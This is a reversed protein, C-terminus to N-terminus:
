RQGDAGGDDRRSSESPGAESRAALPDDDAETMADAAALARRLRRRFTPEDDFRRRLRDLLPERPARDSFVAAAVPDDTWTGAQLHEIARERSCGTRRQITDVVTEAVSDRIRARESVPNRLFRLSGIREDLDDGPTPLDITVEIDDTEAHTVETSRRRQLQGIGGLVLLAALLAVVPDTAPLFTTLSPVALAVVGALAVAGGVLAVTRRV